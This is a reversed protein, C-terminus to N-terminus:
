DQTANYQKNVEAHLEESMPQKPAAAEYGQCM